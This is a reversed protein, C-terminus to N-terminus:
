FIAGIVRSTPVRNTRRRRTYLACVWIISRERLEPRGCCVDKMRSSFMDHFLTNFAKPPLSMKQPEEHKLKVNVVPLVEPNM